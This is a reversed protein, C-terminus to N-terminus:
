QRPDGALRMVLVAGVFGIALVLLNLLVMGMRFDYADIVATLAADFGVALVGLGGGVGLARATGGTPRQRYWGAGVVCLPLLALARFAVRVGWNGTVGVRLSGVEDPFVSILTATEPALELVRTRADDDIDVQITSGDYRVLLDHTSEDVFVDPVVLAPSSGHPGMLPTRMRIVLDGDEQGLTLNRTMTGDSISAIRAPGGQDVDSTAVTVGITFESTEQLRASVESVAGPSRLWGLTGVRVGAASIEMPDDGQWELPPFGAENRTFDHHVVLSTSTGDHPTAGDEILRRATDDDVSRDLIFLSKIVGDWPRNGTLENGVILPYSPDWNRLRTTNGAWATFLVFAVLWLASAALLRPLTISSGVRRAVGSCWTTISRGSRVYALSGLLAGLGNAVVDILSPFRSLAYGQIFEMVLSFIVGALAGGTVLGLHGTPQRSLLATVGFGFPIFLLINLALDVVIWKAAVTVDFNTITGLMTADAPVHFDFPFLTFYAIATSAALTILGGHRASLPGCDDTM